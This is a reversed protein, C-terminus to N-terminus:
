GGGSSNAAPWDASPFWRRTATVHDQQVFNLNMDPPTYISTRGAELRGMSYEVADYVTMQEDREADDGRHEDKREDPLRKGSKGGDQEDGDAVPYRDEDLVRVLRQM